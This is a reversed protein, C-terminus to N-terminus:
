RPRGPIQSGITCFAHPVRLGISLPLRRTSPISTAREIGLGRSGVQHLLQALQM